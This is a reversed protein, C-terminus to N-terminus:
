STPGRTSREDGPLPPQAVLKLGTDKEWVAIGDLQAKHLVAIRKSKSMKNWADASRELADRVAHLQEYQLDAWQKPTLGEKRGRLFDSVEQPYLEARHKWVHLQQILAAAEQLPVVALRLSLYDVGTKARSFAIRAEKQKEFKYRAESFGKPILIGLLAILFGVVALKLVDLALKCRQLDAESSAFIIVLPIAILLLALLLGLIIWRRILPDFESAPNMTKEKDGL